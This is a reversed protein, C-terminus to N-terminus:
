QGLISTLQLLLPNDSTPIAGAGNGLDPFAHPQAATPPLAALLLDADAAISTEDDGQLRAVLAAPLSKEAGIRSRLAATEAAKQASRANALEAQSDSAAKQAKELESLNATTIDDLQKQLADAKQAAEIYKAEQARAIAKYKEPDHADVVPPEAVLPVPVAPEPPTTM